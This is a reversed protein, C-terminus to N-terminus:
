ARINALFQDIKEHLEKVSGNNTILTDAKQSCVVLNMKWPEQNNKESEEDALFKEYSINDTSSNRLKVRAYRVEPNADVAILSGQPALSRFIEVEAIARVSEVVSSTGSRQAKKILEEIIYGPSFRKRLDDAVAHMNDRTPALGRKEIEELLFARVSYHTFGKTKLYDVITGKGAGITGTIAITIM